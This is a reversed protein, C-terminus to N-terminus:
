YGYRGLVYWLIKSREITCEINKCGCNSWLLTSAMPCDRCDKTFDNLDGVAHWERVGFNKTLEPCGRVINNM